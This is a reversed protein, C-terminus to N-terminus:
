KKYITSSNQNNELEYMEINIIHCYMIFWKWSCVENNENMLNKNLILLMKRLM